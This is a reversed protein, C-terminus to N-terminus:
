MAFDLHQAQCGSLLFVRRFLAQALRVSDPLILETKGASGIVLHSLDHCLFFLEIQLVRKKIVQAFVLDWNRHEQHIAHFQLANDGPEVIKGHQQATIANGLQHILM